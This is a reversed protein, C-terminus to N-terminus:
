AIIGGGFSANAGTGHTLNGNANALALFDTLDAILGMLRVTEHSLPM